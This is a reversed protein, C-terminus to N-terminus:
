RLALPLLQVRRRVKAEFMPGGVLSSLLSV